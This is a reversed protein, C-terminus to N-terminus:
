SDHPLTRIATALSRLKRLILQVARDNDFAPKTATLNCAALYVDANDQQQDLFQTRWYTNLVSAFTNRVRLTGVAQVIIRDVIAFDGAQTDVNWLESMLKARMTNDYARQSEVTVKRSINSLYQNRANMTKRSYACPANGSCCDCRQSMLNDRSFAASAFVDNHRLEYENSQKIGPLAAFVAFLSPAHRQIYSYYRPWQIAFRSPGNADVFRQSILTNFREKNDVHYVGTRPDYYGIATLSQEIHDIEIHMLSTDCIHVLLLAELRTGACMKDPAAGPQTLDAFVRCCSCTQNAAM